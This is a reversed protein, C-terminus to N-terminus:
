GAGSPGTITWLEGTRPGRTLEYLKPFMPMPIGDKKKKRLDEISIDSLGILKDPVYRDDAKSFMTYIEYLKGDDYMDRIDKYGAPDNRENPYKVVYINDSLLFSAVDDTAEKGKKIKKEKELATSEDNDFALVVKEFQRVFKENNAFTETANATGCNIGVFPLVPLGEPDKGEQIASIGKLVKDAYDRLGAPAKNNKSINKMQQFASEWAATVDGEGECVNLQKRNNGLSVQKQGFMQSSTKVSGVATFHGKKDKALTWDRKKFGALKGYKDPYPLYTAVVTVGDQGSVASRIGFYKAADLSLSMQPVAVIRTNQLVSEVTEEVQFTKGMSNTRQTLAGGIESNKFYGGKFKGGM